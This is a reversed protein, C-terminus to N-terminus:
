GEKLFIRYTFTKSHNKNLYKAISGNYPKNWMLLEKLIYIDDHNIADLCLLESVIRTAM